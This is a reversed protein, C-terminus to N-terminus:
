FDARLEANVMDISCGTVTLEFPDRIEYGRHFSSM